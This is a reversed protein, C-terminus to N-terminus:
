GGGQISLLKKQGFLGDICEIGFDPLQLFFITVIFQIVILRGRLYATFVLIFNEIALVFNEGKLPLDVVQLHLLAFTFIVSSAEAAVEVDAM